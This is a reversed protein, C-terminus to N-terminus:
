QKFVPSAIFFVLFFVALIYMILSVEKGKGAFLKIIVYSLFGLSIGNSISYTFPMSVITIFAPVAESYDNFDIKLVSEMMMIGVIILAPAVAVSPIFGVLPTAFTAILFLIGTTVATLGTRGGEEIGAASEIYSTVTSTGVLAGLVPGLSDAFLVRGIRPIHGKEDLFKAKVALGIVTGATDFFDVFLLTFILTIFSWQLAGLINLKLFTPVLSPKLLQLIEGKTRFFPIFSLATGVLIGILIAGRVRKVLLITTVVLVIGTLIIKPYVDPEGIPSIKVYTNPDAVILGAQEFGIFALFLGIGVSVACKLTFPISDIIVERLKTLTIIVIIIGEIFFFGLGIRWDIGMGSCISYAFFANLGMGPALAIPYNALLGMVISIIGAVICTALTVAGKDMGAAQLILPNAAIIYAMTMFTTIGALIEIRANTRNASLKFIKELM